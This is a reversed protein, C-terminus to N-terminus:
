SGKERKVTRGLMGTMCLCFDKDEYPIFGQPNPLLLDDLILPWYIYHWLTVKSVMQRLFSPHGKGSILCHKEFDRSNSIYNNVIKVPLILM